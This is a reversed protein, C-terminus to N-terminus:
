SLGYNEIVLELNCNVIADFATSTLISLLDVVMNAQRGMHKKQFM